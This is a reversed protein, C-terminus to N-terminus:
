GSNKKLATTLGKKNKVYAPDTNSIYKSAKMKIELVGRHSIAHTFKFKYKFKIKNIEVALKEAESDSLSRGVRRDIIRGNKETAFNVRLYLNKGHYINMGLAELGGRGINLNKFGLVSLVGVDSEPAIKGAIKAMFLVSNKGIEDLNPTFAKQLPTPYPYDAAGDLVVLVKKM